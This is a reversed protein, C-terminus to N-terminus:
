QDAKPPPQYSCGADPHEKLYRKFDRLLAIAFRRGMLRGGPETLHIFDTWAMKHNAFNVISQEGGMAERFDWFVTKVEKATRLKAKAVQNIRVSKTPVNLSGGALDPPSMLIFPVGPRAERHRGIVEKMAEGHKPSDPEIAGTLLVFLEHKRMKLTQMVLDRDARALLESNVGGVGVSDVVVGPAKRELIAGLLRVLKPGTVIDIRHPGDPLDFVLRGAEVKSGATDVDAFPQKDVLVKFTGHKPKKLYYIEVHDIKTGVPSDEEATAVWTRANSQINQPAIGGFGYYRDAVQITAMNFAKWANEDFGHRVDMHKYWSWPKALGIYGHGSDGFLKQLERRLQGTIFDRTMNSDGYFGIRLPEKRKGRAIAALSEYFPAMQH